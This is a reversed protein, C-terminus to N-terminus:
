GSGATILANSRAREQCMRAEKVELRSTRCAM